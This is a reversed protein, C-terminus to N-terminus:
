WDYRIDLIKYLKENFYNFYTKLFEMKEKDAQTKNFKYKGVNHKKEQFQRIKEQPFDEIELFRCVSNLTSALDKRFQDVNLILIQNKDFYKYYNELQEVYKGRDIYDYPYHATNSEPNLEQEIAQAFSRTDAIARLSQNPNDSFSHYMQWASYARSVPERLVAIMKINELDQKILQPIHKFYLYSPSADCTLKNGKRVKSPFHGLYWGWGQSYNEPLDFYRIEKWTKNELIQPHQSLYRYLSTTGAKQAGIILFDPRSKIVPYVVGKILRKMM